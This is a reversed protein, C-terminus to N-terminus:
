LPALGTSEKLVVFAAFDQDKMPIALKGRRCVGEYVPKGFFDKPDMLKYKEGDKIFSGGPVDITSSRSRSYIALNARRPDYKNPRFTAIANKPPTSDAGLTLNNENVVKKFKDISLGGKVITNGRVECDENEPANYGLRLNVNYLFNTFVRIHHSPKGSGILFPGSNYAINGEFLYNDVDAGPSGYAHMSYTGPYKTLLINDSITKLGDANQTYICHGHGRDPATWGNDYFICGYIESDTAPRWFGCGQNNDHIILNIYKCHDSTGVIELGGWPRALGASPDSGSIKCDREKESVLIELDRIWLWSTGSVIHLGGDITVRAGAVPRVVVPKGEAGALHVGYGKSAPTRDPNKYTGAAIWITSGPKVKQFKDGLASAIDWPSTKSGPANAKGDVTVYYDATHSTPGDAEVRGSSLLLLSMGAVAWLGTRM